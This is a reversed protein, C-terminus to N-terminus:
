GPNGRRAGLPLARRTHRMSRSTVVHGKEVGVDGCPGRDLPQKRLSILQRDRDVDLRAGQGLLRLSAPDLELVQRRLCDPLELRHPGVPAGDSVDALRQVLQGVVLLEPGLLRAAERDEGRRSSQPRKPKRIPERVGHLDGVPEVDLRQQACDRKRLRGEHQRQRGSRHAQDLDYTLSRREHDLHRAQRRIGRARCPLRRDCVSRRHPPHLAGLALLHPQALERPLDVLRQAAHERPELQGQDEGCGVREVRDVAREVAIRVEDLRANAAARVAHRGLFERGRRPLDQVLHVRALQRGNSISELQAERVTPRRGIHGGDRARCRVARDLRQEDVDVLLHGPVEVLLAARHREGFVVGRAVADYVLDSPSNQERAATHERHAAIVYRVASRRVVAPL